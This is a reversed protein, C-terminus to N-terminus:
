LFSDCVNEDEGMRCDKGMRCYDRDEGQTEAELRIYEVKKLLVRGTEENLGHHLVHSHDNSSDQLTRMRAGCTWMGMM